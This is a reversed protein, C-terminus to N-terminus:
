PVEFFVPLHSQLFSDLKDQSLPSCVPPLSLSEAVWHEQSKKGGGPGFAMLELALLRSVTTNIRSLILLAICGQRDTGQQIYAPVGIATDADTSEFAMIGNDKHWRQLLYNTRTRSGHTTTPRPRMSGKSQVATGVFNRHFM